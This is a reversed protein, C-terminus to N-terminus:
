LRSILKYTESVFSQPPEIIVPADEPHLFLHNFAESDNRLFADLFAVMIGGSFRRMPERAVGNKCFCTLPGADDNLFDMHGFESAVFHYSPSSCESFFERHSVGEPACPPILLDWKPGLGSGIVLTPCHLDFSHPEYTLIPPKTQHGRGTGDVPDIGVLASLRIKTNQAALRLASGFAVKGGRSHGAIAVNEMDPLVEDPLYYSLGDPLWNFIAEADDIEQEANAGTLIYMQPAVTIYGHSAIHQLLQTYSSNVIEFGHFLLLVPYEGSQSPFALLLPKPPPATTSGLKRTDRIEVPFRGAKFVMEWPKEGERVMMLKIRFFLTWFREGVIEAVQM